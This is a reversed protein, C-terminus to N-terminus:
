IDKFQLDVSTFWSGCDAVNAAVPTYAQMVVYMSQKSGYISGTDLFSYKRDKLYIETAWSKIDKSTSVIANLDITQDSLVAVAKEDFVGCIGNVTYTNPLFLQAASLGGSTVTTCNVQIASMVVSVRFKTNANAAVAGFVYGHLKLKHLYVQDALRQNIATGAVINQTPSFSYITAAAVPSVSVEANLHKLQSQGNVVRKITNVLKKSAPKRKFRSNKRVYPM